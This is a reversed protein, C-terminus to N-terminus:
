CETGFHFTINSYRKEEGENKRRGGEKMRGENIRM